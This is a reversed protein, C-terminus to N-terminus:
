KAAKLDAPAKKAGRNLFVKISGTQNQVAMRLFDDRRIEMTEYMLIVDPKGDGNVDAVKVDYLNNEDIKLGDIQARKFNGKGDGLLIIAERQGPEERTFIVDLNGDGDFDGSAVGHVGVHGSWRMVPVRKLGSPTFVFRDIDTMETIPPTSVIRTDVDSPWFRVYSVIAEDKTKEFKGVTNALFYSLVPIVDGDTPVLKWKNPGDSLHAIQTGNYFVSSSIIDLYRDSNFHGVSLWDGGVRVEPDVVNIGEWSMGKKRNLYVRVRGYNVRNTELADPGESSAVIDPWGDGNVDAVVVRRSPYDRPLGETSETFHGKGDGLFVYIGNLHVAFVLDMKGDKNVDAAVVGGYDLSHPWTVETWAKWHGKGDGLFIQPNGNGKREPPTILDPFGDGNMDAVALSNRWSGATPLGDSSETFKIAKGSDAPTLASFQPRIRALFAVEGENYRAGSQPAEAAVKAAKEPEPDPMWCWVYKDNQQYVEYSFNVMGMPRVYNADHSDYVAFRREFKSIHFSNGYRWFHKSPDPDPGPDEATGLRASRQEPTEPHIFQPVGGDQVAASVQAAPAPAAAPKQALAEAATMAALAAVAISFKRVLM